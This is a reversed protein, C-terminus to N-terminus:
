NSILNKFKARYYESMGYLTYKNNNVFIKIEVHNESPTGQESASISITDCEIIINDNKSEIIIKHPYEDQPEKFEKISYDQIIKKDGNVDLYIAGRQKSTTTEPLHLMYLLNKTDSGFLLNWNITPLIVPGWLHEMEGYQKVSFEENNIFIIGEVNGFPVISAFSVNELNPLPIHTNLGLEVKQGVNLSDYKKEITLNWKLKNDKTSGVFNYKEEALKIIKNNSIYISNENYSLDFISYLNKNTYRDNNIAIAPYLISAGIEDLGKIFIYNIMGSLKNDKTGYLYLTWWECWFPEHNFKVNFPNNPPISPFLKNDNPDKKKFLLDYLGTYISNIINGM